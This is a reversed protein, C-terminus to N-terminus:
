RPRRQAPPCEASVVRRIGSSTGTVDISPGRCARRQSLTLGPPAPRAAAAPGAPDRGGWLTGSAPWAVTVCLRWAPRRVELVHGTIYKECGDCRIGFETHYDAECYPLGDKSIYEANLQKGCTKCKFCGLHWHKDLAVLSQGNKIEVGCGKCSWLGQSLPVSSGASTPLSCKQCMCEKGNFTVRDGPPFPLRCVACVFCSPHYTKGLASVVEGEIFQDCSFCRTGYLRQYDQTCIYEGQRVFFGGEALDCGCEKCVFCQIHFYKSQVRLVEGRCVNGCTNCLIATSAPKEPASHAAQPESVTGGGPM